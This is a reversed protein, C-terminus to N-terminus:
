YPAEAPGTYGCLGMRPSNVMRIPDGYDVHAHAQAHVECLAGWSEHETVCEICLFSAPAGCEICAAAPMVNRALLTIPRATLPRGERVGAIRIRTESETGFDYIHTLELGQQFVSAARRSMAIEGGHWGAISFQSMHGCCELWIARLYADLDKLTASSRMELDLWFQGGDADQAHLQFIPEVKRRSREARQVAAQFDACSHLHRAFGQKSVPEGCFACTGSTVRGGPM